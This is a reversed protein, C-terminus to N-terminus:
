ADRVLLISKLRLAMEELQVHLDTSPKWGYELYLKSSNGLSIKSVENSVLEKALPFTGSFLSPYSIWLNTPQAYDPSGSYDLAKAVSQFIQNISLLEGRCLNVIDASQKEMGLLKSFFDVVDDVSIFDRKQEGNGHLVPVRGKVLERVIYNLIPPSKRSSNQFDGFVNFIRVISSPFYSSKAESILYREAFFKTQPYILHPSVEDEESFPYSVSNEYVASTSAFIFKQFNQQGKAIEVINITGIFNVDFARTPDIQCEPLSSIAALHYVITFPNELAFDVLADKNTIDITFTKLKPHNALNNWDGSSLNDIALVDYGQELLLPVLHSGIGGCAGTVLIKM